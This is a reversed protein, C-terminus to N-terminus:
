LEDMKFRKVVRDMWGRRDAYLLLLSSLAFWGFMLGVAVSASQDTDVSLGIFSLAWNIGIINGRM